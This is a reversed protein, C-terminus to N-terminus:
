SVPAWIWDERVTAMNETKGPLLCKWEVQYPLIVPQAVAMWSQYLGRSQSKVETNFTVDLMKKVYMYHWPGNADAVNLCNNCIAGFAPPIGTLITTEAGGSQWLGAVVKVTGKDSELPLTTGDILWCM